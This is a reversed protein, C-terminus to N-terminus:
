GRKSKPARTRLPKLQRRVKKTCTRYRRTERVVGGDKLRLRIKVAFRGIM